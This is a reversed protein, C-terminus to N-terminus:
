STFNTPALAHAHTRCRRTGNGGSCISVLLAAAQRATSAASLAHAAGSQGPRAQEANSRAGGGGKAWGGRQSLQWAGALAPQQASHASTLALAAGCTQRAQTCPQLM